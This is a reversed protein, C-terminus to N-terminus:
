KPNFNEKLLQKTKQMYAIGIYGASLFYALIAAYIELKFTIVLTIVTIIIAYSQMKVKLKQNGSATLYAGYIGALAISINSISLVLLMPYAEKYYENKYILKLLDKGYIVFFVFILSNITMLFKINSSIISLIKNQTAGIMEPVIKQVQAGILLSIILSFTYAAFYLAAIEKSLFVSVFLAPLQNYLYSCLTVGAYDFITRDLKKVIRKIHFISTIYKINAFCSVQVFNIIGLSINLLLFWYLSIKNVYCILTICIMAISYFINIYSIINFKNAAQFYPFALAFFTVDFFQRLLVLLFIVKIEINTFLSCLEILLMLLFANIIFLGIKLRVEKVNKKSSVLIYDAFSLNAFMLCFTAISKYSSFLGYDYVSLYRALFLLVVTGSIHRLYLSLPYLSQSLIIKIKNFM